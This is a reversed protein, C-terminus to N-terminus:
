GEAPVQAAELERVRAALRDRDELLFGVDDSYCNVIYGGSPKFGGEDFAKKTSFEMRSARKHRERIERLRTAHDAQPDDRWDVLSTPCPADRLIGRASEFARRTATAASM